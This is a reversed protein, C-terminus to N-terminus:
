KLFNIEKELLSSNCIDEQSHTTSQAWKGRETGSSGRNQVQVTRPCVIVAEILQCTYILSAIEKSNDVKELKVIVKEGRRYLVRSIAPSPHVSLSAGNLDSNVFDTCMTLSHIETNIVVLQLFFRRLDM